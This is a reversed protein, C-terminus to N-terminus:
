ADIVDSLNSSYFLTNDLDLTDGRIMNTHKIVNTQFVLSLFSFSSLVKFTLIEATDHKPSLEYTGKHLIDHKLTM